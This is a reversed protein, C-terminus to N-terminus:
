VYNCALQTEVCAHMRAHKNQGKYTSSRAVTLCAVCARLNSLGRLSIVQLLQIVDEQESIVVMPEFLM